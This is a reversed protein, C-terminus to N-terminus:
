KMSGDGNHIRSLKALEFKLKQIQEQQIKVLTNTTIMQKRMKENQRESIKLQTEKENLRTLLERNISKEREIDDKQLSEFM